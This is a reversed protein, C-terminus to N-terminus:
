PTTNLAGTFPEGAGDKGCQHCQWGQRGEELPLASLAADLEDADQEHAAAFSRNVVKRLGFVRRAESLLTDAKKRWTASLELLGTGRSGLNEFSSSKSDRTTM